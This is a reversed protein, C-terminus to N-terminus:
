YCLIVKGTYTIFHQFLASSGIFPHKFLLTAYRELAKQRQVLFDPDAGMVKKPPLRPILRTPYVQLLTDHLVVFDNYRRNVRARQLFHMSSSSCSGEINSEFSVQSIVDYEVHKLFAGKKGPIQEVRILLQHNDNSSTTSDQPLGM